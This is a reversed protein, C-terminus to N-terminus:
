WGGKKVGADIPVEDKDVIEDLIVKMEGALFKFLDDGVNGRIHLFLNVVPNPDFVVGIGGM